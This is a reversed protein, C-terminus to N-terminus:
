NELWHLEAPAFGLPNEWAHLTQQRHQWQLVRGSILRFCCREIIRSPWCRSKVIAGSRPLPYLNPCGRLYRLIGYYGPYGRIQPLAAQASPNAAAAAHTDELGVARTSGVSGQARTPLACHSAPWSIPLCASLLSSDWRCHSCRGFSAQLGESRHSLLSRLPNRCRAESRAM